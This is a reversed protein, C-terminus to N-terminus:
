DQWDKKKVKRKLNGNQKKYEIFAEIQKLREKKKM